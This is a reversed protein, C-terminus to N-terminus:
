ARGQIRRRDPAGGAGPGPGHSRHPAPIGQYPEFNGAYLIIKEGGPATERRIVAIAEPSAPNEEFDNFDM